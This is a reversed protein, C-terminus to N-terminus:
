SLNCSFKKGFVPVVKAANSKPFKVSTKGFKVVADAKRLNELLSLFNNEGVRSDASFPGVYSVGNVEVTFNEVEKGNNLYSLSVGSPSDASGEQTPCAINLRMGNQDIFYELNGQGFGETWRGQASFASTCALAFIAGFVLKKIQNM